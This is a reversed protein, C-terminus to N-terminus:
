QYSGNIDGYLEKYAMDGTAVVDTILQRLSQVARLQLKIMLLTDSGISISCNRFQEILNAEMKSIYPDVSELLAKARNGDDIERHRELEYENV